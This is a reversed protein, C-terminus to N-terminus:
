VLLIVLLCLSYVTENVFQCLSFIAQCRLCLWSNRKQVFLHLKLKKTRKGCHSAVHLPTLYDVTVDDVPAKHYLLIRAADVHDACLFKKITILAM